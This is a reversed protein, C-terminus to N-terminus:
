ARLAAARADLRDAKRANRIAKAEPTDLPTYANVAVTLPTGDVLIDTKESASAFVKSIATGSVKGEGLPVTLVLTRTAENFEVRMETRAM